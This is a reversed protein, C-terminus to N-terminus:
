DLGAIRQATLYRSYYCTQPRCALRVGRAAKPCTRWAPLIMRCAQTLVKQIKSLTGKPVRGAGPYWVDAGYLLTPLVVAWVARRAAAASIGRITNNMSRLHYIISKAKHIWREVRATFALRRDLWVGLWRM